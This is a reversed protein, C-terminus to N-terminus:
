LQVDEDASMFDRLPGDTVAQAEALTGCFAVTGGDLFVVDDAVRRISRLEHTVVV